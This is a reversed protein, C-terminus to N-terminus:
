RVVQQRVCQGKWERREGADVLEFDRWHLSKLDHAGLGVEKWSHASLQDSKTSFTLVGADALYMGYRQLARAVVQAAPKLSALSVDAKLRMLAGYPPADEPGTTEPASHTAPHVYIRRRILPNPLIFRLAHRIEGAAVEDADFLMPTIPLGAADASSCDQGRGYVGLPDTLDWVSLCGGYAKDNRIDAKWMEYLRCEARNIVLLHCDSGHECRYGAEGEVAGGPVIPVPALDCDPTYHLGDTWTFQRKPTSQTAQLVLFSFDLQFRAPATHTNELFGTVRESDDALRRQSVPQNWPSSALFLQGEANRCDAPLQTPTASTSAKPAQGPEYYNVPARLAPAETQPPTCSSALALWAMGVSARGLVAKVSPNTRM